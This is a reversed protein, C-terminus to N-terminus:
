RVFRMPNNTTLHMRMRHDVYVDEIDLGMGVVWAICCFLVTDGSFFLKAVRSIGAKGNCFMTVSRM